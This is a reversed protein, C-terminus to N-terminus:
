GGFRTQDLTQILSSSKLLIEIDFTRMVERAYKEAIAIPRMQPNKKDGHLLLLYYILDFLDPIFEKYFVFTSQHFEIRQPTIYNFPKIYCFIKSFRNNYKDSYMFLSTRQGEKLTKYAWHLDSNYEYSLEKMNDVILNSDSNKVVFVPFINKKHLKEVLEINYHSINGGILPGDIFLIANELSFNEILQNRDTVYDLNSESSIDETFKIFKSTDTIKKSRSYFYFTITCIPVIEEDLFYDMAHTTVHAEGELTLFRLKSEDYGGFNIQKALSCGKEANLTHAIDEDVRKLFLNGGKTIFPINIEVVSPNQIVRPNIKRVENLRDHFGDQLLVKNLNEVKTSDFKVDLM